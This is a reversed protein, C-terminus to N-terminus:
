RRTCTAIPRAVGDEVSEEEAQALRCRRLAYIDVSLEDAHHLVPPDEPQELGIAELMTSKFTGLKAERLEWPDHWVRSCYLRSGAATYLCYRETLFYALDGGRSPKLPKGAMWSMELEAAPAKRHTRRSTFLFTDGRQGLSMKARYYPLKWFTRATWVALPNTADLSFFWVGPEGRYRVYTRVNLEHFASLGPIPPAIGARIGWMTFPVIGIWGSGNFTDLELGEPLLPRLQRPDIPWHAFLLKGWTQRMVRPGSIRSRLQQRALAASMAVPFKILEGLFALGSQIEQGVRSDFRL